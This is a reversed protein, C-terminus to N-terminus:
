APVHATDGMCSSLTNLHIPGPPFHPRALDNLILVYKNPELIREEILIGRPLHGLWVAKGGM